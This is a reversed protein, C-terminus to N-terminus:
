KYETRSDFLSGSLVNYRLSLEFGGVGKSATRYGSVNMDYSLGFAIDSMEYTLKYVFADHSRYFLGVGIANESKTGTTKTGVRTRYKLLTGTVYEWAQYQKNVMLAPLLSFRTDEFDHRVNLCYTMRVPLRYDSGSWYEQNPRNLHFAGISIRASTVDDHDQDTIVKAYQYAIGAGIDTSTFQRYKAEEGSTKAPDIVNGDFQSGWTLNTYKASKADAGGNIGVSLIGRKHLKIVGSVNVVANTHSIKAAGAKDNFLVFGLGLFARRKKSKFLGGDLSVAVTSYPNGMSAWQNRYNATARFYGNFFGTNAPSLMLPTEWVQSFHIDQSRVSGISILLLLGSLYNVKKM